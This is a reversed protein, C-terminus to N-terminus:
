RNNMPLFGSRGQPLGVPSMPRMATMASMGPPPASPIPQQTPTQIPTRSEPRADIGSRAAMTVTNIVKEITPAGSGWNYKDVMQLYEPNAQTETQAREPMMDIITGDLVPEARMSKVRELFEEDQLMSYYDHKMDWPTPRARQSELTLYDGLKDLEEVMQTNGAAQFIDRYRRRVLDGYMKDPEVDESIEHRGTQDGYSDLTQSVNQIQQSSM